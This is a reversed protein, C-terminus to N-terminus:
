LREAADQRGERYDLYWDVLRNYNIVGYVVLLLLSWYQIEPMQVGAIAIYFTQTAAYLTLLNVTALLLIVGTFLVAWKYSKFYLISNALMLVLTIYHRLTAANDTVIINIWCYLLVLAAILYPIVNIIKKKM